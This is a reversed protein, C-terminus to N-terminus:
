REGDPFLQSKEEKTRQSFWGGIWWGFLGSRLPKYTVILCSPQCHKLKDSKKAAIAVRYMVIHTMNNM